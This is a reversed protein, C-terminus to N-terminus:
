LRILPLSVSATYINEDERCEFRGNHQKVINDCVELGIHTSEEKYTKKTISNSFSIKIFGNSISSKIKVNKEKDAYKLINSFINDIVRSFVKIDLSFKGESLCLDKQVTYGKESLSFIYDEILTNIVEIGYSKKDLESEKIDFAFFYEFIKDSLEKIQYAKNKTKDVYMELEEENKYKKGDIIEILGILVTLPTRLDHSMATVLKRNALRAQEEASQREIISKRMDDISKALYTM